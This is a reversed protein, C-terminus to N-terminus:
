MKLKKPYCHEMIMEFHNSNESLAIYCEQILLWNSYHTRYHVCRRKTDVSGWATLDDIHPEYMDVLEKLIVINKENDWEYGQATIHAAVLRKFTGGSMALYDALQWVSGFTVKKM